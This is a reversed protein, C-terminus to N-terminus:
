ISRFKIKRLPGECSGAENEYNSRFVQDDKKTSALSESPVFAQFPFGKTTQLHTQLCACSLDNYPRLVKFDIAWCSHVSDMFCYLVCLLKTLPSGLRSFDASPYGNPILGNELHRSVM